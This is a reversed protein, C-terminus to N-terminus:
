LEVEVMNWHKKLDGHYKKELGDGLRSGPDFLSPSSIGASGVRPDWPVAVTGRGDWAVM